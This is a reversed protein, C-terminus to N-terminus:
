VLVVEDVKSCCEKSSLGAMDLINGINYGEPMVKITGDDYMYLTNAELYGDTPDWSIVSELRRASYAIRTRFNIINPVYYRLYSNEITVYARM